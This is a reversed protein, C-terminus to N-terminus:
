RVVQALVFIHLPNDQLRAVVGFLLIPDLRHLQELGDDQSRVLPSRLAPQDRSRLLYLPSLDRLRKIFFDLYTEGYAEIENAKFKAGYELLRVLM